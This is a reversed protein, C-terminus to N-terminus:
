PRCFDNQRVDYRSRGGFSVGAWYKDAIKFCESKELAWLPCKVIELGTFPCDAPYARRCMARHDELQAANCARFATTRADNVDPVCTQYCTDHRNCGFADRPKQGHVFFDNRPDSPPIYGSGFEVLVSNFQANPMPRNRLSNTDRTLDNPDNPDPQRAFKDANCGDIEHCRNNQGNGREAAVGPEPAGKRCYDAVGSVTVTTSGGVTDQGVVIITRSGKSLQINASYSYRQDCAPPIPFGIPIIGCFLDLLPPRALATITAAVGDATVTPPGDPTTVIGQVTVPIASIPAAGQGDWVVGATFDSSPSGITVAPGPGRTTRLTVEVSSNGVGTGNAAAVTVTNSGETLSVDAKSYAGNNNPTAIGNVTIASQPDDVTGAVTIPSETAITGSEPTAIAVTPPPVVVMVNVEDPASDNKGDRVVLRAVYTGTMDAIFSPKDSAPDILTASSGSPLTTLSWSYALPDGDADSSASGDLVVADGTYVGKTQDPGADAVPPNSNDGGFCAALSLAAAVVWARAAGTGIGVGQRM